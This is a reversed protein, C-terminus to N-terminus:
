PFLVWVIAKLSAPETSWAAEWSCNFNTSQYWYGIAVFLLCSRGGCGTWMGVAGTGGPQGCGSVSHHCPHSQCPSLIPMPAALPSHCFQALTQTSSLLLGSCKGNKLLNYFQEQGCDSHPIRAPAAWTSFYSLDWHIASFSCLVQVFTYVLRANAPLLCEAFLQPTLLPMQLLAGWCRSAAELWVALGSQDWALWQWGM